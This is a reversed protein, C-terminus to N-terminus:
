ENFLNDIKQKRIVSNIHTTALTKLYEETDKGLYVSDNDNDNVEIYHLQHYTKFNYLVYKKEGDVYGINYRGNWETWKIETM